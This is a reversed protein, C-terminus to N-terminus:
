LIGQTNWTKGPKHGGQQIVFSSALSHNWQQNWTSYCSVFNEGTVM